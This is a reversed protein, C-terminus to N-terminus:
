AYAMGIAGGVAIEVWHWKFYRSTKAYNSLAFLGLWVGPILAAAWSFGKFIFRPAVWAWGVLFKQWYPHREGYGFSFSLVLLPYSLLKLWREKKKGRLKEIFLNLSIFFPLVFRRAWKYRYGGLRWLAAGIIFGILYRM